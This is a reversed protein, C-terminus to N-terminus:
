IDKYQRYITTIEKDCCLPLLVRERALEKQSRVLEM